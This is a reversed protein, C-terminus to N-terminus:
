QAVQRVAEDLGIRAILDGANADAVGDLGFREVGGAGDAEGRRFETEVLREEDDVAVDKGVEVDRGQLGEVVFVPSLGRDRQM